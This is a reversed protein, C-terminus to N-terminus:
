MLLETVDLEFGNQTFLENLKIKMETVTYTGEPITLTVPQSAGNPQLTLENNTSDIIYNQYEESNINTPKIAGGKFSAPEM